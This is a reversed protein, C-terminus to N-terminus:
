IKKDLEVAHRVIEEESIMLKEEVLNLKIWKSFESIKEETNLKMILLVQNKETLAVQQNISNILSILAERYHSKKSIGHM